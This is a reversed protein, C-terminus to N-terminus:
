KVFIGNCTYQVALTTCIFMIIPIGFFCTNLNNYLIITHVCSVIGPPYALMEKRLQERRHTIDDATRCKYVFNNAFTSSFWFLHNNIYM